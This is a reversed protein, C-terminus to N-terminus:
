RVAEKAVAMSHLIEGSFNGQQEPDNVASAGRSMNWVNHEGIGSTSKDQESKARQYELKQDKVSKRLMTM